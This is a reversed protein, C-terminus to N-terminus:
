ARSAACAAQGDSGRLAVGGAHGKVFCLVRLGEFSLDLLPYFSGPLKERDTLLGFSIRAKVDEGGAKTTDPYQLVFLGPGTRFYSHLPQALFQLIITATYGDPRAFDEAQGKRRCTSSSSPFLYTPIATSKLVTPLSMRM